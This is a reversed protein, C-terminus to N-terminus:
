VAIRRHRVGPEYDYCRPVQAKVSAVAAAHTDCTEILYGRVDLAKVGYHTLLTYGIVEGDVVVAEQPGEARPPSPSQSRMPSAAYMVGPRYLLGPDSRVSSSGILARDLEPGTLSGRQELIGALREIEPLRRAVIQKARDLAHYVQQEDGGAIELAISRDGWSGDRTGLLEAVAAGAMVMALRDGIPTTDAFVVRTNADEPTAIVRAVEIGLARATVAHAAEHLSTARPDRERQEEEAVFALRQRWAFGRRSM